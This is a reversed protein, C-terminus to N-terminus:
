RGQGNGPLHATRCLEPQRRAHDVAHLAATRGRQFACWEQELKNRADNEDQECAPVSRTGSAPGMVSTAGASRCSVSADLRPVPDAVLMFQSGLLLIPLLAPM